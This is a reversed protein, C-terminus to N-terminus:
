HYGHNSPYFSINGFIHQDMGNRLNLLSMWEKPNPDFLITIVGWPKCRFPDFSNRYLDYSSFRTVIPNFDMGLCRLNGKLKIGMWGDPKDQDLRGVYRLQDNKAVM